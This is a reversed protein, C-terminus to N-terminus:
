QERWWRLVADRRKKRLRSTRNSGPLRGGHAAAYRSAAISFLFVSTAANFSRAVDLAKVGFSRLAEAFPRVGVLMNGRLDAVTRPDSM